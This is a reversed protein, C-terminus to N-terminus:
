RGSQSRAPGGRKAAPRRARSTPARVGARGSPRESPGASGAPYKRLPVRGAAWEKLIPEVIRWSEEAEDARISFTPDGELVALLLRAYAPLDQPALDAQMTLAELDFPDGAGNVNLDLGMRDPDIQFRLVNARPRAEEGFAMATVDRFTVAIERRERELAKGTRLTFPVGAWRRDNVFLIVQAFTETARAPDVGEEDVYAPVSRGEVKGAGYRARITLRRV